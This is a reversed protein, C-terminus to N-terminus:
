FRGAHSRRGGYFSVIYAYLNDPSIDLFKRGFHLVGPINVLTIGAEAIKKRAKERLAENQSGAKGSEATFGRLLPVWSLFVAKDQGYCGRGVEAM